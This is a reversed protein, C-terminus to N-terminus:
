NVKKWLEVKWEDYFSIRVPIGYCTAIEDKHIVLGVLDRQFVMAVMAGLEWEYDECKFFMDDHRARNYKAFITKQIQTMEEDTM